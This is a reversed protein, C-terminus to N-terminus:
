GGFLTRPNDTLLSDFTARAVDAAELKPWFDTFSFM